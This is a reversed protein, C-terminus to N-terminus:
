YAWASLEAPQNLNSRLLQFRTVSGPQGSRKGTERAWPYDSALATRGSMHCHRDALAAGMPM